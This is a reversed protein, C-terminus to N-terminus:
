AYVWRFFRHKRLRRYARCDANRQIFRRISRDICGTRLLFRFQKTGNDSTTTFATINQLFVNTDCRYLTPIHYGNKCRTSIIVGHCGIVVTQGTRRQHNEVSFLVTDTNASLSKLIKDTAIFISIKCFRFINIAIYVFMRQFRQAFAVFIGKKTQIQQCIKM